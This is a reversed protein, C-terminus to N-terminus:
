FESIILNDDDVVIVITNDHLHDFIIEKLEEPTEAESTDICYTEEAESYTYLSYQCRIAVHDLEMEQGTEAEYDELWGALIKTGEYVADEHREGLVEHDLLADILQTNSLTIKM